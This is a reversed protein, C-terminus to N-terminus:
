FIIITNIEYNLIKKKIKLKNLFFLLVRNFFIQFHLNVYKYVVAFLCFFDFKVRTIQFPCKYNFKFYYFFNIQCKYNFKFYDVLSYKHKFKVPCRVPCRYNFKFYDLVTSIFVQISVQFYFQIWESLYLFLGPFYNKFM